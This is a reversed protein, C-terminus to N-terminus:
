FEGRTSADISARKAIHMILGKFPLAVNSPARQMNWMVSISHSAFDIPVHKLLAYLYYGRERTIPDISSVSHLRSVMVQHLLCIDIPMSGFRFRPEVKTQEM